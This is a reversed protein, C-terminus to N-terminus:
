QHAKKNLHKEIRDIADKVPGDCGQESLGKLCALTGYTLITLEDKLSKIDEDQKNQKLYWRYITFIIGFIAVIASVVAAVTIITNATITIGEDMQGEMAHFIGSLNRM